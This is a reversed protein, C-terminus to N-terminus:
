EKKQEEEQEPMMDMIQNLFALTFFGNLKCVELIVIFVQDINGFFVKNFAKENNIPSETNRETDKLFCGETLEILLEPPLGYIANIVLPLLPTLGSYDGAKLKELDIDFKLKIYSTEKTIHNVLKARLKLAQMVNVQRVVITYKGVSIEKKNLM